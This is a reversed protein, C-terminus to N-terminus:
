AFPVTLKSLGPIPASGISSSIRTTVSDDEVAVLKYKKKMGSAIDENNKLVAEEVNVAFSRAKGKLAALHIQASISGASFGSTLHEGVFPLNRIIEMQLGHLYGIPYGLGYMAKQFINRETYGDQAGWLTNFQIRIGDLTRQIELETPPRRLEIGNETMEMVDKQLLAKAQNFVLDMIKQNNEMIQEKVPNM